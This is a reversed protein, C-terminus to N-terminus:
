PSNVAQLVKGTAADVLNRMHTRQANPVGKPDPGHAAIPPLGRLTIAWVGRSTAGRQSDLVYVGHIVKAREASGFGYHAISELASLFDVKPDQDPYGEYVEDQSRLIRTAEGYSPMADGDRRRGDVMATVALLHGTVADLLVVFKPQYPPGAPYELRWARKGVNRQGLFPTVDEAVKVSVAVPPGGLRELGTLTNARAIAEAASYRMQATAASIVFASWALTAACRLRM